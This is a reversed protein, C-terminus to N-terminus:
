TTTPHSAEITKAGSPDGANVILRSDATSTADAAPM